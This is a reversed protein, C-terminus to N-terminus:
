FQSNKLIELNYNKIDFRKIVNEKQMKIFKITGTIARESGVVSSGGDTAKGIIERGLDEAGESIEKALM